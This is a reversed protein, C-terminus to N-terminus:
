RPLHPTHSKIYANIRKWVSKKQTIITFRAQDTIGSIIDMLKKVDPEETYIAIFTDKKEASVEIGRKAFFAEVEAPTPM